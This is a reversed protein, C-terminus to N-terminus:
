MIHQEKKVDRDAQAPNTTLWKGNWDGWKWFHHTYNYTRDRYKYQNKIVVAAVSSDDLTGPATDNVNGASFVM